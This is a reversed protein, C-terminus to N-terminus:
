AIHVYTTNLNSDDASWGAMIEEDYVLHHCRPCRSCSSMEVEMALALAGQDGSGVSVSDLGRGRVETAPQFKDLYGPSPM